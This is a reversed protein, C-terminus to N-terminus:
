SSKKNKRNEYSEKMELMREKILENARLTGEEGKFTDDFYIPEGVLIKNFKFFNGKKIIFM